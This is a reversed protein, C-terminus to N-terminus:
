EESLVGLPLRIIATKEAALMMSVGIYFAVLGTMVGFAGGARNVSPMQNWSGVSLLLLAMALLSLLTSFAVNKRLVPPIFMVTIMFWVILFLGFAQNFEDMNDQFTDMVGSGPIFITAYSMWFAGYSSFATAGFTNGHPVEWMGALLQVLGGAFLAM